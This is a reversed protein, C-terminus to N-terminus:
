HMQYVEIESVMFNVSGGFFNHAQDTSATFGTPVSYSHGLQSGNSVTTNCKDAIYLDHGAGFTPGYGQRCYISNGALKVPLKVQIGHSNNLSFLFSNSDHHYMGSSAWSAETYGGFIYESTTQVVTITPGINDCKTHFISATFGDKSGRYALKWKATKGIWSILQSQYGPTLLRSDYFFEKQLGYYILDDELISREAKSQPFELIDTRLFNLIYRFSQGCRDIFYRGKSDKL